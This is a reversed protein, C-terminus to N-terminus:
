DFPQRLATSLATKCFFPLALSYDSIVLHPIGGNIIGSGTNKTEVGQESKSMTRSALELRASKGACTNPVTCTPGWNESRLKVESKSRIYYTLALLFHKTFRLSERTASCRRDRRDPRSPPKTRSVRAEEANHLRDVLSTM